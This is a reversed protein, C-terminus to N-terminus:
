ILAASRTEAARRGTPITARLRFHGGDVTGTTLEGDLRNVRNSLNQIGSGSDLTRQQPRDPVGDNTIEITVETDTQRLVIDCREAKSHRLVNTVGERLVTALVTRVRTPLEEHEMEMHVSVDAALLVSRASKAEEDLSLERYGSAVSRVDTLAQRSIDIIQSLEEEAREPNKTVLRHTLESKLSIASLSYGLLDHLDRSFRLREAAVAVKAMENRAANMAIVFTALRTLGYVVLSMIFVNITYFAIDLPSGPLLNSMVLFSGCVVAALTIVGISTPLILLASGAVLGPVSVFSVGFITMPAYTLLAQVALLAYGVRSRRLKPAVPSIHLLTLGLVGTMCVGSIITQAVDRHYYWLMNLVGMVTYLIFVTAVVARALRPAFGKGLDDYSEWVGVDM